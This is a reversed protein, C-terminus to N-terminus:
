RAREYAGLCAAGLSLGALYGGASDSIWHRDLVLRGGGSVLSATVALPVAIAAPVVDERVLVWATTLAVATTELAHGSPYSTAEREPKGPPPTRHRMIRDLGKSLSAAALSSALVTLAGRPRERALLAASVVATFPVLVYWKGIHGTVDSARRARGSARHQMRRRARRDPEATDGRAVLRSVAAYAAALSGAVAFLATSGRARRASM